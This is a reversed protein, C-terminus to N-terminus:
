LSVGRWNSRSLEASELTQLVNPLRSKMVTMGSGASAIELEADREAVAVRSLPRPQSFRHAPLIWFPPLSPRVPPCIKWYGKGGEAMGQTVSHFGQAPRVASQAPDRVVQRCDHTAAVQHQRPEVRAPRRYLYLGCGRRGAPAPEGARHRRASIGAGDLDGHRLGRLRRAGDR